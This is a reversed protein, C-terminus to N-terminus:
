SAGLQPSLRAPALEEEEQPLAVAVGIEGPGLSATAGPVCETVPLESGSGSWVPRKGEERCGPLPFGERQPSGLVDWAGM